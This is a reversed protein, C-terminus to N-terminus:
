SHRQQHEAGTNVALQDGPLSVVQLADSRCVNRRSFHLFCHCNTCQETTTIMNRTLTSDLYRTREITTAAGNFMPSSNVRGEVGIDADDEEDDGVTFINLVAAGVGRRM